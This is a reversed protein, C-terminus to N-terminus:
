SDIFTSNENAFLPSIAAIVAPWAGITYDEHLAHKFKAAVELNSPCCQVRERFSSLVKEKKAAKLEFQM